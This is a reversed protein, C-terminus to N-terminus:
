SSVAKEIMKMMFSGRLLSKMNFSSYSVMCEYFNIMIPISLPEITKVKATMQNMIKLKVSFIM